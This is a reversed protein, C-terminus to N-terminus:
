DTLTSANAPTAAGSMAMTPAGLTPFDVSNLRSVAPAAREHGVLGAHGPVADVAGDQSAATGEPEDVGSPQRRAQMSGERLLDRALRLDREPLRRPDQVEHIRAGPGARQVLLQRRKRRRPM